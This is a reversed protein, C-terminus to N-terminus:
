VEEDEPHAERCYASVGADYGRSYWYREADAEDFPNERVGTTKGDCYGMAFALLYSENCDM